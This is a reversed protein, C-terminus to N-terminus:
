TQDPRFDGSGQHELETIPPLLGGGFLDLSDSHASSERTGTFVQFTREGFRLYPAFRPQRVVARAARKCAKFSFAVKQSISLNHISASLKKYEADECLKIFASALESTSRSFYQLAPVETSTYTNMLGELRALVARSESSEASARLFLLTARFESFRMEVEAQWQMGTLFTDMCDSLSMISVWEEESLLSMKKFMVGKQLFQVSYEEELPELLARKRALIAEEDFLQCCDRIPAPLRSVYTSVSDSVLITLASKAILREANWGIDSQFFADVASESWTDMADSLGPPRLLVRHGTLPSNPDFMPMGYWDEGVSMVPSQSARADVRLRAAADRLARDFAPWGRRDIPVHPVAALLARTFRPGSQADIKAAGGSACAFMACQLVTKPEGVHWQDVVPKMSDGWNIRCADVIWLQHDFREWGSSRFLERWNTTEFCRFQRETAEPLVLLQDGRPGFVAGHGCYYVILFRGGAQAERPEAIHDRFSSWVFDHAVVGSLGAANCRSRATMGDCTSLWVDIAGQPVQQHQVLWNALSLAGTAAGPVDFSRDLGSYREIGVIIARTEAPPALTVGM